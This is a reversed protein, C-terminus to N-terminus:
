GYTRSLYTHRIWKILLADQKEQIRWLVKALLALNWTKLGKFGLSEEEKAQVDRGM